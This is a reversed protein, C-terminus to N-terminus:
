TSRDGGRAVLVPHTVRDQEVAPDERLKGSELTVGPRTWDDAGIVVGAIQEHDGDGSLGWGVDVGFRVVGCEDGGYRLL